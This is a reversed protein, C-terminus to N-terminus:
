KARGMLYQRSVRTSIGTLVEYPITREAEALERADPAGTLPTGLLIAEEGPRVREFASVNMMMLDMCVNGVIECRKGRFGIGVKAYGRRFGDGYGAALTAITMRKRARFSRNYSVFDGSAISKVQLIPARWELFPAFDEGKRVLHAPPYGYLAIGPRVWDFQANSYGLIGGSNAAHRILKRNLAKEFLGVALQFRKLQLQTLAPDPDDAELLHTFIGEVQVGQSSQLMGAIKEWDGPDLGLRHMGTDVKVHVRIKRRHKKTFATFRALGEKSHITLILNSQISELFAQESSAGLCLIDGEYGADRLPIAEAVDAVGVGAAGLRAAEKAIAVSGHGYANAKVVALISTGRGLRALLSKWNRRFGQLDIVAKTPRVYPSRKM